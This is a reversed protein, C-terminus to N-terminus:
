WTGTSELALLCAILNVEDSNTAAALLEAEQIGALRLMRPSTGSGLLAQVDLNESIRRIKAPDNDILVVDKKEDSLKKAIHYGVEGAGIIIVRMTEEAAPLHACKYLLTRLIVLLFLCPIEHIFEPPSLGPM